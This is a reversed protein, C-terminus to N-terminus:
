LEKEIKFDAFSINGFREDSAIKKVRSRLLRYAGQDTSAVDIIRIKNM